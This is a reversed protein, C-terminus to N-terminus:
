NNQRKPQTVATNVPVRASFSSSYLYLSISTYFALSPISIKQVLQM